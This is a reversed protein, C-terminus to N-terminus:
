EIPEPTSHSLDRHPQFNQGAFTNKVEYIRPLLALYSKIVAMTVPFTFTLNM